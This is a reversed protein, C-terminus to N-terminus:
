PRGCRWCGPCRPGPHSSSFPPDCSPWESAMSEKSTFIKSYFREFSSGLLPALGINRFLVLAGCICRQYLITEALYFSIVGYLCSPKYEALDSDDCGSDEHNSSDHSWSAYACPRLTCGHLGHGESKEPSPSSSGPRM